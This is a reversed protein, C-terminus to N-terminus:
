PRGRSRQSALKADEMIREAQSWAQRHANRAARARLISKAQNERHWACAKVWAPNQLVDEPLEEPPVDGFDIIRDYSWPQPNIRAPKQISANREREDEEAKEKERQWRRREIVKGFWAKRRGRAQIELAKEKYWEESRNYPFHIAPNIALYQSRDETPSTKIPTKPRAPARVSVGPPPHLLSQRYIMADFAESDFISARATRLDEATNQTAVTISDNEVSADIKLTSPPATIISGQEDSPGSAQPEPQQSQQTTHASQQGGSDDLIGDQLPTHNQLQRNAKAHAIEITPMLSDSARAKKFNRLYSTTQDDSLIHSQNRSSVDLPITQYVNGLQSSYRLGPLRGPEALTFSGEPRQKTSSEKWRSHTDSVDAKRKKPSIHLPLNEKIQFTQAPKQYVHITSGERKHSESRRSSPVQAVTITLSDELNTDGARAPPIAINSTKYTASSTISPLASPQALSFNLSSAFEISADVLEGVLNFNRRPVANSPVHRGQTFDQNHRQRAHASNIKDISPIDPNLVFYPERPRPPMTGVTITSADAELVEAATRKPRSM